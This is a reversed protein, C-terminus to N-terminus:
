RIDLDVLMFADTQATTMASMVRAFRNIIAGATNTSAAKDLIGPRGATAAQSSAATLAVLVDGEAFVNGGNGALPTKVTCPGTRFLWFLDDPAVGTAPLQDDVIGAIEQAAVSSYGDVRRGRYGAKWVVARGPLLYIGSANRVLVAGAFRNSRTKVTGAGDRYEDRFENPHGELAVSQGVSQPTGGHYTAGRKPLSTVNNAM